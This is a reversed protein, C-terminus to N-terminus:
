FRFFEPMASNLMIGFFRATHLLFIVNNAYIFRHPPKSAAYVVPRYINFIQPPFWPHHKVYGLM